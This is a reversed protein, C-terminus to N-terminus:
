DLELTYDITGDEDRQSNSAQSGNGGGTSGGASAGTSGAGSQSNGTGTPHGSGTGSGSAASPLSSSPAPTASMPPGMDFLLNTMAPGSLTPLLDDILPHPSTNTRQTCSAAPKGGTGIPRGILMRITFTLFNSNQRGSSDSQSAAQQQSSQQSHESPSQSNDQTQAGAHSEEPSLSNRCIPCTGHLELWPIICPEHYVHLCPLKRVSEGVVFDEFCVSCQLKREVQEENITVIPIEAIREKELPPPGTNDMQNLLQTVITDIGERGWAYDGPNGMFFMPGSAGAGNAGGSVSILIERLIQDVHNINQVGRRRSGRRGTFRMSPRTDGGGGVAAGGVSSSSGASGEGMETGAAGTGSAGSSPGSSGDMPIDDMTFIVPDGNGAGGAGGSEGDNRRFFPSLISNTFIEGALRIASAENSIQPNDFLNSPQEFDQGAAAASGATGSREAAPLEEIFGELCHPCTFESSVRDIEIACSHCYFRSASAAANEVMAEMTGTVNGQQCIQTGGKMDEIPCLEDAEEVCSKISPQNDQFEVYGSEDSFESDSDIAQLHNILETNVAAVTSKLRMQRVKPKTPQHHTEEERRVPAEVLSGNLSDLPSDIPESPGTTAGSGSMPMLFSSKVGPAPFTISRKFILEPSATCSGSDQQHAQHGTREGLPVHIVQNEALQEFSRVRELVSGPKGLAAGVASNRGGMPGGNGSAGSDDTNTTVTSSTECGSSISGEDSDPHHTAGGNAAQLKSTVCLLSPPATDDETHLCGSHRLRDDSLRRQSASASAASEAATRLMELVEDQNFFVEDRELEDERDKLERTRLVETDDSEGVVGPLSYHDLDDLSLALRQTDELMVPLSGHHHHHQSLDHMSCVTTPNLKMDFYSILETSLPESSNYNYHALFAEFDDESSDSNHSLKSSKGKRSVAATTDSQEGTETATEDGNEREEGDEEGEEQSITDLISDVSKNMPSVHVINENKRPIRAEVDKPSKFSNRLRSRRISHGRRCRRRGLTTSPFLADERCCAELAVIGGTASACGAKLARAAGDGARLENEEEEDEEGIMEEIAMLKPASKSRELPPRYNNAGVSLMIKRRPMSPNDYVSNALSLRANQRNLKDRKFERLAKALNEKLITSIELAVSEKSCIVAHCRFEHKLKRGEHRYIWCFVRPYNKPSSCYTIRHSWYETLGHQRTTAKLGSPCLCLKMMVDPKSNQTYNRWLTALPKEVCGDGFPTGHRESLSHDSIM